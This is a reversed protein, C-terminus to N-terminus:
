IYYIWHITTSTSYWLKDMIWKKSGNRIAFWGFFNNRFSYWRLFLIMENSIDMIQLIWFLINEIYKEDDNSGYKYKLRAIGDFGQKEVYFIITKYKFSANFQSEVWKWHTTWHINLADPPIMQYWENSSIDNTDIQFIM